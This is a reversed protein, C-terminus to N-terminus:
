VINLVEKGKRRAMEAFKAAGGYSRVVYTVVVDARELMWKNRFYIAFKKPCLEIGEPYETNAYEAHYETETNEDPVAKPLYALVVCYEIGPYIEKLEKLVSLAMRDFSGNNGVYFQDAGRTTILEILVEKLKSKMSTPANSHGFFTVTM